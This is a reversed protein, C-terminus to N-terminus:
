IVHCLIQMSYFGCVDEYVTRWTDGSIFYANHTIYQIRHFLSSFLSSSRREYCVSDRIIKLGSPTPLIKLTSGILLCLPEWHQAQSESRWASVPAVVAGQASCCPDWAGWQAEGLKRLYVSRGCRLTEGLKQVILLKKERWFLRDRNELWGGM